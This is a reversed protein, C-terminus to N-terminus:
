RVIVAKRTATTGDATFRFLYVGSPLERGAADRGDFWLSGGRVEGHAVRRGRADFVEMGVPGHITAGFDFRVSRTFPNPFAQTVALAPGADPGRVGTPTGGAAGIRYTYVDVNGARSDKWALVAGGAGDGASRPALQDESSVCVAVGDITWQAVGAGDLRQAYIDASAGGRRDEWALIAGSVGDPTIAPRTQGGTATCIAAGNATWQPAGSANIRQAYVDTTVGGRLDDWAVIAGGAADCTIVPHMQDLAAACVTVGNATWLLSGATDIHQAFVDSTGGRVDRWAVIAGGAE